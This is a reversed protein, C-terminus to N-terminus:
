TTRSRKLDQVNRELVWSFVTAEDEEVKEKIEMAKVGVDQERQALARLTKRQLRNLREVPDRVADFEATEGNIADQEAKAAELAQRVRFLVEQQRINEYKTEEQALDKMAKELHKKAEEQDTEAEDSQDQQLAASAGAMNDAADSLEQKMKPDPLERLRRMLDRTREELKKQAAAMEQMKQSRQADSPGQGETNAKNRQQAEEMKKELTQLQELAKQQHTLAPDVEGERLREQAQDMEQVATEAKERNSRAEPPSSERDEQGREMRDRLARMKAELLDQQAALRSTEQELEREAAAQRESSDGSQSHDKNEESEGAAEKVQETREVLSRQEEVIEKLRKLDEERRYSSDGSMERTEDLLQDQEKILGELRKMGEMVSAILDQVRELDNRDQLIAFIDELDQLLLRQEEDVTLQAEKIKTDLDEIRKVINRDQVASRARRILDATHQRGELENKKVLRDMKENIRDLRQKINLQDRAIRDLTKSASQGLLIPGTLLFFMTVITLKKM